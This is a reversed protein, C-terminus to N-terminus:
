RGETGAAAPAAPPGGEAAQLTKAIEQRLDSPTEGVNDMYMGALRRVEEAYDSRATECFENLLSPAVIPLRLEALEAALEYDRELRRSVFALYDQQMRILRELGSTWFRAVSSHRNRAIDSYPWATPGEPRGARSHSERAM